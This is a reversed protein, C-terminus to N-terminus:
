STSVSMAVAACWAMAENLDMVFTDGVTLLRAPATDSVIATNTVTPVTTDAAATPAMAIPGVGVEGVADVAGELLGVVVLHVGAGPCPQAPAWTSARV